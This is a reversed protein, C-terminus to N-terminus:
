PGRIALRGRYGSNRCFVPFSIFHMQFQCSTHYKSMIRCSSSFNYLNSYWCGNFELTELTGPLDDQFGPQLDFRCKSIVFTRLGTCSDKIQQLVVRPLTLFEFNNPQFARVNHTGTIKLVRLNAGLSPLVTFALLAIQEQTHPRVLDIVQLIEREL